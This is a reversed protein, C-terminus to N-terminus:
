NDIGLPKSYMLQEIQESIKKKLYHDLLERVTESITSQEAHVIRELHLKFPYPVKASITVLKMGLVQLIEKFSLVKKNKYLFGSITYYQLTEIDFFVDTYKKQTVKQTTKNRIEDLSNVMLKGHPSGILEWSVNRIETDEEFEEFIDDVLMTISVRKNQQVAQAKIVARLELYNSKSLKM